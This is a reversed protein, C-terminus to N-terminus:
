HARIHRTFIDGWSAAKIPTPHLSVTGNQTCKGLHHEHLKEYSHAQNNTLEDYAHKSNDEKATHEPCCVDLAGLAPILHKVAREAREASATLDATAKKLEEAIKKVCTVPLQIDATGNVHTQQCTPCTLSLQGQQERVVQEVWLCRLCFIHSCQLLKLDAKNELCVSCNVKEAM